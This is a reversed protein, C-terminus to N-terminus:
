YAFPQWIRQTSGAATVTFNSLYKPLAPQTYRMPACKGERLCWGHQLPSPPADPNMFNELPHISPLQSQDSEYHSDSDPPIRLTSKKKMADWKKARAEAPRKITKNKYIYRIKFQEMDKGLDRSCSALKKQSWLLTLSLYNEIVMSVLSQMQALIYISPSLWMLLMQGACHRVTM